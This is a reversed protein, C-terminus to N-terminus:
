FSKGAEKLVVLEIQVCGKDSGMLVTGDQITCQLSMNREALRTLQECQEAPVAFVRLKNLSELQKANQKWWVDMARGYTYLLVEDAKGSAKRLLREDPLGVEIWCQVAGTLDKKWLAPETDSSIGRGFELYEQANLAFALLRVMLREDTESPHRAVTLSHNEYYHRDMDSVQLEVKYITSNLAM